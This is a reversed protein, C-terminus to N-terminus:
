RVSFSSFEISLRTGRHTPLPFCLLGGHSGVRAAAAAGHAQKREERQAGSGPGVAGRQVIVLGGRLGRVVVGAVRVRAVEGVLVAPDPHVFDFLVHARPAPESVRAGM